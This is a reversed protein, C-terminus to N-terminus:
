EIPVSRRLWVQAGCRPCEVVAVQLGPVADALGLRARDHPTDYLPQWADEPVPFLTRVAEGYARSAAEPGETLALRRREAGLDATANACKHRFDTM